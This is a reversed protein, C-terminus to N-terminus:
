YCKNSMELVTTSVYTSVASSLLFGRGVCITTTLKHQNSPAHSTPSMYMSLRRMTARTESLFSWFGVFLTVSWHTNLVLIVRARSIISHPPRKMSTCYVEPVTPLATSVRSWALRPGERLPISDDVKSKGGDQQGPIRTEYLSESTRLDGFCLVRSGSGRLNVM